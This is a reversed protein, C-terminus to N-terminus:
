DNITSIDEPLDLVLTLKEQDIGVILDEHLPVFIEDGKARGVVLLLQSTNDIVEKITGLTVGDKTVISFGILTQNEGTDESDFDFASLLIKCGIFEEVSKQTDYGEFKLRVSDGGSYDTDEIFFPVPRGEIELFVSEQEYYKGIFSKELRVVVFGEYGYAKSIHGLLIQASYAM